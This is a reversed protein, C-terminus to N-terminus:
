LELAYGAARSVILALALLWAACAVFRVLAHNMARWVRAPVSSGRGRSWITRHTGLWLRTTVYELSTPM